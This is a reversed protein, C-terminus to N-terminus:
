FELGFPLDDPFNDPLFYILPYFFKEVEVSVQSATQPGKGIAADRVRNKGFKRKEYDNLKM